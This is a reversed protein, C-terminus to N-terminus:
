LPFSWHSTLSAYCKKVAHLVNDIGAVNLYSEHQGAFSATPSDEATASSRVAVSHILGHSMLKEYEKSVVSVVTEPLSAKLILARCEEAIEKLNELSKRDLKELAATLYSTLNNSSLFEIYAEATIAFGDPVAIGLPKLNRIMEGLSANKGGVNEVDELSIQDFPKIFKKM